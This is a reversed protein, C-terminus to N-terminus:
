IFFIFLDNWRQSRKPNQIQTKRWIQSVRATTAILATANAVVLRVGAIVIAINKPVTPSEATVFITRLISTPYM